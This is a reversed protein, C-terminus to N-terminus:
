ENTKQLNVVLKQSLSEINLTKREAKVWKRLQQKNSELVRM